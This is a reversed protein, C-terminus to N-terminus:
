EGYCCIYWWTLDPGCHWKYECWWDRPPSGQPSMACFAVEDDVTTPWAASRDGAIGIFGVKVALGVLLLTRM